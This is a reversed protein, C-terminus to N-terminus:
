IFKREDNEVLNRIANDLDIHLKDALNYLSLAVDAIENMIKPGNWDMSNKLLEKGLEAIESLLQSYQTLPTPYRDVGHMAIQKRAWNANTDKM